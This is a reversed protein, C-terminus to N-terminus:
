KILWRAVCASSDDDEYNFIHQNAPPDSKVAEPLATPRRRPLLGFPSAVLFAVLKWPLRTKTRIRYINAIIDVHM